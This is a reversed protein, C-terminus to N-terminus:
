AGHGNGNGHSLGKYAKEAVWQDFKRALQEHYCFRGPTAGRSRLGGQQMQCIRNDEDIFMETNRAYMESAERFKEDGAEIAAVSDKHLALRLIVECSEPGRPFAVYYIMADVVPIVMMTPYVLWIPMGDYEPPLDTLGPSVPFMADGSDSFTLGPTQGVMIAWPQDSIDPYDIWRKMPTLPQFTEPHVWPIHYAEIYNEVYTKWNCNLQYSWRHTTVMEGMRYKDAGWRTADSVRPAFPKAELDFNVLVFGEWVEVKLPHLPYDSKKFNKTAKFDPTGRLEGNLGYLWGHYPCRFAKVSGEGEVLQCGRHRCVNLHARIEGEGDRVVILPDPGISQTIFDGPKAVDEIRGVCIWERRFVHELELEEIDPRWYAEGPLTAAELIPRELADIQEPPIATSATASM